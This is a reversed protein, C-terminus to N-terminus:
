AGRAYKDLGTALAEAVDEIVNMDCLKRNTETADIFGVEVLVAAMDTKKLVTFGATRIGRFREGLMRYEIVSKVAEAIPRGARYIWIESGTAEPDGPEDDDADANCHVSVFADASFRNARLARETLGVFVDHERTMTVRHGLNRLILALMVCVKMTIVSELLGRYSAGSDYGGHGADVAFHM